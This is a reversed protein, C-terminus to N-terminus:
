LELSQQEKLSFKFKVGTVRRGKKIAEYEVKYPTGKTVEKCSAMLVYKSFDVWRPYNDEVGFYHKLNDLSDVRFGTSKFQMILEYLRISHSSRLKKIDLLKYSTYAKSLEQLYPKVWKTFSLAVVGQAESYECSDVWRFHAKRKGSDKFIVIDRDYLNLSAAKIQMYSNKNELGWAEAYERAHIEISDPVPHGSKIKAIACEVLRREDLSLRYSSEVLKNARIVTLETNAMSQM